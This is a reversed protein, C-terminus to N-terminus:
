RRHRRGVAPSRGGGPDALGASSGATPHRCTHPPIMAVRSTPRCPRVRRRAAAQVRRRNWRFPYPDPGDRRRRLSPLPLNRGIGEVVGSFTGRGASGVGGALAAAESNGEPRQSSPHRMAAPGLCTADRGHGKVARGWTPVAWRGRSGKRCAPGRGADTIRRPRGSGARDPRDRSASRRVPPLAATM